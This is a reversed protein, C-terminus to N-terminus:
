SDGEKPVLCLFRLPSEDAASFQHLQEPNIYAFSGSELSHESGELMLTGEGELVYSVHWWAHRHKPTYGGPKLSFLRLHGNFNKQPGVLIKKAVERLGEGAVQEEAVNKENDVM